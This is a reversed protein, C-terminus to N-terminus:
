ESVRVTNRKDLEIMFKDIYKKAYRAAYVAALTACCLQCDSNICYNPM